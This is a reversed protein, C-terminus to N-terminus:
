TGYEFQGVMADRKWAEDHGFSPTMFDVIMEASGAQFVTVGPIHPLGLLGVIEPYIKCGV